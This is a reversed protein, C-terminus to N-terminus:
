VLQEATLLFVGGGGREFELWIFPLRKFERRVVAESNGVEVILLGRPRLHAGSERLIVRVSDLGDRGAALALPPEHRYEPPLGSMERQGVYPPNAVIIDYRERVLASFHDSRILRVRRGVRHRRVNSAAVELAGPSIDIADVRARPLAKACAIAICGSGTGIDLIRQVGRPEIWPTFRREILEAIPSRPILVRHDVHFPLGGFWTEGTLYVAPIREEIRRTILENVREAGRVGVRRAYITRDAHSLGLAHLVLAASDDWANDTGHGFFVGARQLRRAGRAILTRVTCSPRPPRKAAGSM